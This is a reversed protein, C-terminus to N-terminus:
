YGSSGFGANGRQKVTDSTNSNDCLQEEMITNFSHKEFIIQAVRDHKTVKYDIDSHNYLIVCIEGEYNSDIVGAGVEIGHRLSLGSRSAIRGYLHPPIRLSVGTKILCRSRAGILCNESAYIDYGADGPRNRSPIIGSESLLVYYIKDEM